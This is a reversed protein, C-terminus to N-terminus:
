NALYSKTQIENNKYYFEVWRGGIDSPPHEKNDNWKDKGIGQFYTGLQWHLPRIVMRKCQSNLIEQSRLVESAVHAHGAVYYDARIADQRRNTKIVTRTVPSNGGSGHTYYITKSTRKGGGSHEFQLRIFGNFNGKKCNIKNCLRGLIDSHYRRSVSEEHNGKSILDINDSYKQLFKASNDIITDFYYNIYNESRTEEPTTRPDYKAGMADFWDGFILIRANKELAEDLHRKLIKRECYLSDFHVDSMLLFSQNWGEEYTFRYLFADNKKQIM